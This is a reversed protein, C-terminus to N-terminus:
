WWLTILKSICLEEFSSAFTEEIIYNNCTLHELLYRNALPDWYLTYQEKNKVGRAIILNEGEYDTESSTEISYWLIKNLPDKSLANILDRSYQQIISLNYTKDVTISSCFYM